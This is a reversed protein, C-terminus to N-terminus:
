VMNLSQVLQNKLEKEQEQARLLSENDEMYIHVEMTLCIMTEVYEQANVDERHGNRENQM